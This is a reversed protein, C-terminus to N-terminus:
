KTRHIVSVRVKCDCGRPPPSGLMSALSKGNRKAIEEKATQEILDEYFDKYNAIPFSNVEPQPPKVARFYKKSMPPEMEPVDDAEAADLYLEFDKTHPRADEGNNDYTLFKGPSKQLEVFNDNCRHATLDHGLDLDNACPVSMDVDTYSKASSSRLLRNDM